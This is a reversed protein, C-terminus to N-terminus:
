TACAMRQYESFALYLHYFSTAPATKAFGTGDRRLHDQWVGHGTSLYCNFIGALTLEARAMAQDDSGSEAMALHGKLAETQVWLRKSDQRIAGDRGVADYTLADATDTGHEFAFKYLTTALDRASADGSLGAYHHLLWTWEYHHGPELHTGKDGHAPKWDVTYFEGLTGTAADIFHERMLHYLSAARARYKLDGTAEYLSMMAEFLHMHPNQRRPLTDPISERYGGNNAGLQEDLFEITRHVWDLVASDGFARYHWAFANLAFAQEYTERRGDAVQGNTDLAFIFGGDPHWYRETLFTLGADAAKRAPGDWGEIAAHCFVYIQRGQVRMRRLPSPVPKGDLSLQEAFGGKPDMGVSSWVPLSQEFLWRRVTGSPLATM